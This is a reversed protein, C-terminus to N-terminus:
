DEVDVALLSYFLPLGDDVGHRLVVEPAHRVGVRACNQLPVGQQDLALLRLVVLLALLLHHQLGQIEPVIKRLM